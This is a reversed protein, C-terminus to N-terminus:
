QNLEWNYFYNIQYAMIINLFVYHRLEDCIGLIIMIKNILTMKFNTKLFYSNFLLLPTIQINEVHSFAFCMNCFGPLAYTCINKFLLHVIHM